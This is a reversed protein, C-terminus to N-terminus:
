VFVEVFVEGGLSFGFHLEFQVESALCSQLKGILRQNESKLALLLSVWIRISLPRQVMFGLSLRALNNTQSM